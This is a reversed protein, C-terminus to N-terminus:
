EAQIDLGVEASRMDVGLKAREHSLNLGGGNGAQIVMLSVGRGGPERGLLDVRGGVTITVHKPCLRWLTRGLECGESAELIFDLSKDLCANM